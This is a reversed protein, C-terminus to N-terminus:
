PTGRDQEQALDVGCVNVTVGIAQMMAIKARMAEDATAEDPAYAVQIHNARHRAMFQDRSIGYLVANMMPWTPDTAAWRADVDDHDLAVAAGRGIDMHLANDQVFVRSWVIEGPKSEGKLTGGGRSFFMAPQREVTASRYGAAFHSAPAAGSIMLLWVFTDLPRGNRDHGAVYGGWRVDHLTTAPDIGLANWIRNTILGDLGACEDVENFHPLAQNAYLEEGDAVRYVPPREVNNLLGEVLDSAPTLDKLGQQYQIGIADCGYADAIRVAAIYMKMQDM